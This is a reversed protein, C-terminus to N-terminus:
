NNNNNSNIKEGTLFGITGSTCAIIIPGIIVWVSQAIEPNVIFMLCGFLTLTVAIIGIIVLVITKHRVEGLIKKAEAESIKMEGSAKIQAATQPKQLSSIYKIIYDVEPSYTTTQNGKSVSDRSTIQSTGSTSTSTNIKSNTNASSSSSSNTM